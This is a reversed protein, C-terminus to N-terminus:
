CIPTRNGTAGTLSVLKEDGLLNFPKGLSFEVNECNLRVTELVISLITRKANYDATLWRGKMFRCFKGFDGEDAAVVVRAASPSRGLRSPAPM